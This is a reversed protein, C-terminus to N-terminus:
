EDCQKMAKLYNLRNTYEEEMESESMINQSVLENIYDSYEASDIGKGILRNSHNEIERKGCVACVMLSNVEVHAGFVTPIEAMENYGHGSNDYVHYYRCLAEFCHQHRKKLFM